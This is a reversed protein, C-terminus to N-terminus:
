RLRPLPDRGGLVREFWENRFAGRPDMREALRIFDARREYGTPAALFLKGWHPRPEFPELAAEIRELAREM